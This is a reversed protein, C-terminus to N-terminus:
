HLAPQCLFPPPFSLVLTYNVFHLKQSSLFIAWFAPPFLVQLLVQIGCNRLEKSRQSVTWARRKTRVQFSPKGSETRKEKGLWQFRRWALNPHQPQSSGSSIGTGLIDLLFFWLLFFKKKRLLILSNRVDWHSIIYWLLLLMLFRVQVKWIPFLILIKLCIDACYM